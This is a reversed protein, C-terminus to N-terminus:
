RPPEASTGADFVARAREVEARHDVAWSSLADLPGALSHGLSTLAYEVQPPATPFVTRTVLGDRELLRLTRTLMRRSLGETGRLLETFRRPGRQLQVILLVSWKDGVRDLVDRVPCGAAATASSGAAAAAAGGGIARPTVSARSGISAPGGSVAARVPGPTGAVPVPAGAQLTVDRNGQWM